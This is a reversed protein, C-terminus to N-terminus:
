GSWVVPGQPMHRTLMLETMAWVRADVRDPSKGGSAPDSAHFRCMEDELASFFGAHHIRGQEDLAAVPEARAVKGRSAHVAKFSVNPDFTRLTHEVMDGGQNVEAVIRDASHTYYARIARSAWEAPTYKGSLDELVYGRGDTGLGAVIIGTEDSGKHSSVAPDIAIVIRKMEPVDAKDCRNRHIIDRRWLAGPMDAAFAEEPTAPYERRFTWVSGLELVKM